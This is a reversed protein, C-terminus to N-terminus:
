LLATGGLNQAIYIAVEEAARQFWKENPNQKGRWYPSIWPENTYPMYPAIDLSVVIEWVGDGKNELRIANYKLNGTKIPAHKKVINLAGEMILAMTDESIM